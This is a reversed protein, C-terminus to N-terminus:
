RLYGELTTHLWVITINSIQYKRTSTFPLAAEESTNGQFKEQQMIHLMLGIRLIVVVGRYRSFDIQLIARTATPLGDELGSM